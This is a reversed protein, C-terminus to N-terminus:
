CYIFCINTLHFFINVDFIGKKKEAEALQKQAWESFSPIDEHQPQPGQNIVVVSDNTYNKVGASTITTVDDSPGVDTQATENGLEVSVEEKLPEVPPIVDVQKPEAHVIYVDSVNSADNESPLPVTVPGTVGEITENELNPLLSSAAAQQQLEQSASDVLTFM